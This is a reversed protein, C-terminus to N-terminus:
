RAVISASRRRQFTPVTEALKRAVGNELRSEIRRYGELSGELIWDQMQLLVLDRIHNIVHLAEWLEGRAIRSTQGAAIRRPERIRLYIEM